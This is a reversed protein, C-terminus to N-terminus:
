IDFCLLVLKYTGASLYVGNALVVSLSGADDTSFRTEKTAVEEDVTKTISTASVSGYGGKVSWGYIKSGSAGLNLNGHVVSYIESAAAARPTVQFLLALFGNKLYNAAVFGNRFLLMFENSTSAELTIDRVEGSVAGGGVAIQEIASIFGDPFALTGSAGSKKRIANAVSALGSNLKASDVVKDYAM